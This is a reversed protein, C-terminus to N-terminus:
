IGLSKILDEKSFKELDEYRQGTGLYIIPKRTVYSISIAAGGKEDIDAKALIIGDIGVSNNFERAQECCDNGTISEGVFVKLDPKVVRIIKEMERMLDKNSQMRGATDMLVVDIGKAGAHKVADFGVAAADSGYDHKIMKVKLKDAHEQLQEISAARFTDGAALVVSLNNDMLMRAVKAISTTKGSGNIGLFVIVYPRKKKIEKLLDFDGIFLDEISEKLSKVILENIKGKRIPVDVLDMKMDEKIKEIVEVAVNNELLALELEWFLEDFKKESIKKTIVKEKIKRFFGKKEKEAEQKEEEIDEGLIEEEEPEEEIEEEEKKKAREPREKIEKKPEEKIVEESIEEKVEEEAKKSIKDVIDKVKKKLFKFM